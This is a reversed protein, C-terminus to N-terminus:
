SIITTKVIVKQIFERIKEIIDSFIGSKIIRKVGDFVLWLGVAILAGGGLQDFVTFDPGFVYSMLSGIGFGAGAGVAAGIGSVVFAPIGFAYGGVAIGIGGILYGLYGALGGGGLVGLYEPIKTASENFGGMAIGGYIAAIGAAIEVSGVAIKHDDAFRAVKSKLGYVMEKCKDYETTISVARNLIIENINATTM